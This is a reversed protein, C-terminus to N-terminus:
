FIVLLCHCYSITTPNRIQRDIFFSGMVLLNGGITVLSTSTALTSLLIKTPLSYIKLAEADGEDDEIDVTLNFNSFTKITQNVDHVYSQETDTADLIIVNALSNGVLLLLLFIIKYFSSLISYGRRSNNNNNNNYSSNSNTTIPTTPLLTKRFKFHKLLVLFENLLKYPHNNQQQHHHNNNNNYYDFCYHREPENISRKCHDMM